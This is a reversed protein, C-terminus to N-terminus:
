AIVVMTYRVRECGLAAIQKKPPCVIFNVNGVGRARARARHKERGEEGM